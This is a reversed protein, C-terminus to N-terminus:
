TYYPISYININFAHESELKRVIFCYFQLIFIKYSLFIYQFQVDIGRQLM